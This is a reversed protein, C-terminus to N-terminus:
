FRNFNLTLLVTLQIIFHVWEFDDKPRVETKRVQLLEIASEDEDEVIEESKEIDSHSTVM